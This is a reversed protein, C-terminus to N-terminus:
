DSQRVDYHRNQRRASPVLEEYVGAYAAAMAPISFDRTVRTRARAGHEAMLAPAALYDRLARAMADVDGPPVLRGSVGDEVLEVNGGVRTAIVPLASAQAELLTNSIGENLSPLVFVDLARMLDAIDHREGPLWALGAIGADRLLDLCTQRAM